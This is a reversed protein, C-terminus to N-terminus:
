GISDIFRIKNETPSETPCQTFTPEDYVGGSIWFLLCRRQTVVKAAITGDVVGERLAIRSRGCAVEGAVEVGEGREDAADHAARARRQGVAGRVHGIAGLGFAPDFAKSTPAVVVM